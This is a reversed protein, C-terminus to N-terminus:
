KLLYETPNETNPWLIQIARSDDSVIFGILNNNIDYAKSNRRNAYIYSKSLGSDKKSIYEFFVFYENSIILNKKNKKDIKLQIIDTHLSAYTPNYINNVLGIIESLATNGRILNHMFNKGFVFGIIKGNATIYFEDHNTAFNVIHGSLNKPIIIEKEILFVYRHYNLITNFADSYTTYKPKPICISDYAYNNNCINYQQTYYTVDYNSDDYLYFNISDVKTDQSHIQNILSLSYHINDIDTDYINVYIMDAKKSM